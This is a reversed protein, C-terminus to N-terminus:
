IVLTRVKALRVQLAFYEDDTLYGSINRTFAPAETFEM